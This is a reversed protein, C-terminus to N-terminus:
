EQRIKVGQLFDDVLAKSAARLSFGQQDFIWHAWLGDLAAFLAIATLEPDVEQRFESDKVGDEIVRSLLRRYRQLALRFSGMIDSERSAYAWFELILRLLDGSKEAAEVSLQALQRVKHPPQVRLLPTKSPRDFEALWADLVALFLEQKNKYYYYILAKSLKATVAVKEM